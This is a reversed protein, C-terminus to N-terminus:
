GGKEERQEDEEGRRQGEQGTEDSGEARGVRRPAGGTMRGRSARYGLPEHYGHGSETGRGQGARGRTEDKAQKNMRQRHRTGKVQQRCQRGAELGARKMLTASACAIQSAAFRRDTRKLIVAACRGVLPVACSVLPQRVQKIVDNGAKRSERWCTFKHQGLSVAGHQVTNNRGSHLDGDDTSSSFHMIESINM